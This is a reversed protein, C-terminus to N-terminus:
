KKDKLLVFHDSKLRSKTKSRVYAFFSQDQWGKDENSVDEWFATPLWQSCMVSVRPKTQGKIPQIIAIRTSGTSRTDASSLKWHRTPWGSHSPKVSRTTKVPVYQSELENFKRKFASWSEEASSIGFLKQWDTTQLERRIGSIDAKPYDDAREEQGDWNSSTHWFLASHDGNPFLSVGLDTM